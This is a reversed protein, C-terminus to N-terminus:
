YATIDKGNNEKHIVQFPVYNGKQFILNLREDIIDQSSFRGSCCIIELIIESLDAFYSIDLDQEYFREADNSKKLFLRILEKQYIEPTLKITTLNKNNSLLLNTEKERLLYM